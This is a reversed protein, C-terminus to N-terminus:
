GRTVVKEEVIVTNNERGRVRSSGGSVLLLTRTPRSPGACTGAPSIKIPMM